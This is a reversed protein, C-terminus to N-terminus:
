EPGASNAGGLATRVTVLHQVFEATIEVRVSERDAAREMLFPSNDWSGDSNQADCFLPIMRKAQALFKPERTAEYLVSAGWAYKCVQVSDEFDFQIPSGNTTLALYAEALALAEPDARASSYQGLFAAAIGPNYYAQRPKTFDTVMQWEADADGGFDTILRNGDMATFLRDPLQPQIEWLKRFWEYARDAMPDAGTILATMGLQATPFLDQRGNSRHDPHAAYAGGSSPHQFDHLREVIRQALAFRGLHWAGTAINALPYSAWRENFGSRAEARLDGATTLAHEDIWSLVAAAETHHGSIALAWPV